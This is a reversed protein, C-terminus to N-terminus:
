LEGTAVWHACAPGLKESAIKESKESEEQSLIDIWRGNTGKNIFIRASGEWFAGGLPVSSSANNKMYDFSCHLLIDDWKSEDIAIELFAAIKRIETPM